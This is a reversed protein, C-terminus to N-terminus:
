AMYLAPNEYLLRRCAAEDLGLHIALNEHAQRLSMASGVLHSRDPAWAAGDDGVDVEWRGLRHRGAGLGAAAMADSVVICRDVGATAIYNGLAMFPVHVGDAIFCCILRDRLYLARQIINDHRPLLMPCGNGLHTFLTLGADCARRLEDLSANTHGASIVVGQRALLATVKAQEDQEPALTVVRVLGDGADLLRRMADEDASRVADAPHAGRYGDQPSIFPGEVHLGAIVRRVLEDQSRLEVLRRLRAAMTPLHDTIVTALIRETGDQALRECARRLGAADLDDSNFDVGAYGNVQLDLYRMM